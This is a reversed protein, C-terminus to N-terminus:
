YPYSMPMYPHHRWWRSFVIKCVDIVKQQTQNKSTKAWHFWVKGTVWPTKNGWGMARPWSFWWSESSGLSWKLWRRMAVDGSLGGVFRLGLAAPVANKRKKQPYKKAFSLSKSSIILMFCYNIKNLHGQSMSQCYGCHFWQSIWLAHVEAAYSGNRGVM